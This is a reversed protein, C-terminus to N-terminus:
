FGSPEILFEQQFEFEKWPSIVVSEIHVHSNDTTEKEKLTM